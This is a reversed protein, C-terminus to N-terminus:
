LKEAQEQLEKRRAEEQKKTMRTVPMETHRHLKRRMDDLIKASRAKEQPTPEKEVVVPAEIVYKPDLWRRVRDFRKIYPISVSFTKFLVIGRNGKAIEDQLHKAQDRNLFYETDDVKVSWEELYHDDPHNYIEQTRAGKRQIVKVGKQM